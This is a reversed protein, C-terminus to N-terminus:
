PDRQIEGVLFMPTGDEGVQLRIVQGDDAIVPYFSRGGHANVRYSAASVPVEDQFPVEKTLDYFLPEGGKDLTVIKDDIALDVFITSPQLSRQQDRKLDYLRIEAQWEELSTPEANTVQNWVVVEQDCDHTNDSSAQKAVTGIQFAQDTLLNYAYLPVIEVTEIARPQVLYIMWERNCARPFMPIQEDVDVDNNITFTQDRVVDYSHLTRDRQGGSWVALGHRFHLSYIGDDPNSAVIMESATDLDYLHLEGYRFSSGDDNTTKVSERWVIYQDSLHLYNIGSSDDFDAIRQVQGTTLDVTIVTEGLGQPNSGSIAVLLNEEVALDRLDQYDVEGDSLTVLQHAAVRVGRDPIPTRTPRPTRVATVPEEVPPTTTPSATAAQQPANALAAPPETTTPQSARQWVLLAVLVLITTLLVGSLLTLISRNM